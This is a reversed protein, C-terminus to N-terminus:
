EVNLFTSIIKLMSDKVKKLDLKANKLLQYLEKVGDEGCELYTQLLVNVYDNNNIEKQREKNNFIEKLEASCIM